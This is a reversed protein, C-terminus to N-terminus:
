KRHWPLNVCIKSKTHRQKTNLNALGIIHGLPVPVYYVIFHGYRALFATLVVAYRPCAASRRCCDIARDALESSISSCHMAFQSQILDVFSESSLESIM